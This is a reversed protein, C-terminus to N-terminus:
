VLFVSKAIRRSQLLSVSCNTVIGISDSGTLAFPVSLPKSYHTFRWHISSVHTSAPRFSAVTDASGRKRRLTPLSNLLNGTLSKWDQASIWEWKPRTVSSWITNWRIGTASHPLASAATFHSTLPYPRSQGKRPSWGLGRSGFCRPPRKQWAVKPGSWNVKLTAM